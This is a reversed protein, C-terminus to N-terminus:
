SNSNGVGWGTHTNNAYGVLIGEDHSYAMLGKPFLALYIGGGSDLKRKGQRCLHFYITLLSKAKKNTGSQRHLKRGRSAGM